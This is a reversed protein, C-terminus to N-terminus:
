QCSYPTMHISPFSGPDEPLVALVSLKQAMEESGARPDSKLFINKKMM